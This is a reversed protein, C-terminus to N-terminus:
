PSMKEFYKKEYFGEKYRFDCVFCIKRQITPVHIQRNFVCIYVNWKGIKGSLVKSKEYKQLCILCKITFFGTKKQINWELINYKKHKKLCQMSKKKQVTRFIM